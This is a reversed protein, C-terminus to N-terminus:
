LVKEYIFSGNVNRTEFLDTHRSVSETSAVFLVGGKKLVKFFGNIIARAREPSFYMLVNRCFIVDFSFGRKKVWLDTDNLNLPLFEVMKKIDDSIEFNGNRKTTYKEIYYDPLRRISWDDYVGKRASALSMGNIDTAMIRVEPPREMSIEELKEKLMMAITFPEEGTSCGASWIHILRDAPSKETVLAPFIEDKFANLKEEERYFFTENINLRELLNILEIEKYRHKLALYYNYVDAMKLESIREAIRREFIKEQGNNFSLGLVDRM